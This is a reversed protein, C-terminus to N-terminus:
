RPPDDPEEEFTERREETESRRGKVTEDKEQGEPKVGLPSDPAM